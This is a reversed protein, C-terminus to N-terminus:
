MSGYKIEEGVQMKSFQFSDKFSVGQDVQDNGMLVLQSSKGIRIQAYVIDSGEEKSHGETKGKLSLMM